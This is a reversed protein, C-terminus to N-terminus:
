RAKFSRSIPHDVEGSTVIGEFSKQEALIKGYDGKTHRALWGRARTFKHAEIERLGEADEPRVESAVFKIKGVNNLIYRAYLRVRNVFFESTVITLKVKDSEEDIFKRALCLEEVTSSGSRETIITTNKPVSWANDEIYKKMLLSQDPADRNKNRFTNGGFLILTSGHNAKCLKIADQLRAKLIPLIAGDDNPNFGLCIIVNKM